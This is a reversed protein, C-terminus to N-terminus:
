GREKRTIPQLTGSDTDTCRRVPELTIDDLSILRRFKMSVERAAILRATSWLRAHVRGIERDDGRLRVIWDVPDAPPHELETM